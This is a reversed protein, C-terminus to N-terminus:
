PDHITQVPTAIGFTSAFPTTSTLAVNEYSIVVNELQGGRGFDIPALARERAIYSGGDMRVFTVDWRIRDLPARDGVGAVIAERVAATTADVWLERLRNHYADRLPTLGLHAVTGDDDLLSVRYRDAETGSRGIIAFGDAAKAFTDVDHAVLYPHPPTLGFNQDVAFAVPGIPDGTREPNLPSTQMTLMSPPAGTAGFSRQQATPIGFTLVTNFGHPTTPARREEQSFIDALITADTVDETTAWTDVHHRGGNTFSVRVDYTAYHSHADSQAAHVARAFLAEARADAGDVAHAFFALLGLAIVSRAVGPGRETM